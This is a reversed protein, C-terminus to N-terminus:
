VQETTVAGNGHRDDMTAGSYQGLLPPPDPRGTTGDRFHGLAPRLDSSAELLAKLIKKPYPYNMAHYDITFDYDFHLIRGGRPAV